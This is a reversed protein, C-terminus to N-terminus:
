QADDNNIDNLVIMSSADWISAKTKIDFHIEVKEEEEKEREIGQLRIM